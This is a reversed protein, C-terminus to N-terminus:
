ALTQLSSLLTYWDAVQIYFSSIQCPNVWHYKKGGRSYVIRGNDCISM